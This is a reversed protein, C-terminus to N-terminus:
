LSLTQTPNLHPSAARLFEGSVDKGPRRQSGSGPINVAM